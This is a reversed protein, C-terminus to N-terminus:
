WSRRLSRPERRVRDTGMSPYDPRLLIHRSLESHQVFLDNFHKCVLRLMHYQKYQAPTRLSGTLTQVTAFIDLWIPAPVAAPLSSNHMQNDMETQLLLKLAKTSSTLQARCSSAGVQLGVQLRSSIMPNIGSLFGQIFATNVNMISGPLTEKQMASELAYHLVAQTVTQDLRDAVTYHGRYCNRNDGVISADKSMATCRIVLEYTRTHVELGAPKQLVVVSGVPQM